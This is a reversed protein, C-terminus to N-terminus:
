PFGTSSNEFGSCAKSFRLFIRCAWTENDSSRPMANAVTIRSHSFYLTRGPRHHEIDLAAGHGVVFALAQPMRRDAGHDQKRAIVLIRLLQAREGLVDLAQALRRQRDADVVFAPSYLSKAFTERRNRRHPLEALEPVAVAVRRALRRAAGGEDDGGLKGRVADIEAERRHEVEIVAGARGDAVTRQVEVGVRDAREAGADHLTERGRAHRRDALVKRTVAKRREIGM